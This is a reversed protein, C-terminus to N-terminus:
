CLLYLERYIDVQIRFLYVYVVQSFNSDRMIISFHFLDCNNNITKPKGFICMLKGTVSYKVLNSLLLNHYWRHRRPSKIRDSKSGNLARTGDGVEELLASM